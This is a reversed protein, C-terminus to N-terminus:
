HKDQSVVLESIIERGVLCISNGCPVCLFTVRKKQPLFLHPLPPFSFFLDQINRELCLRHTGTLLPQQVPLLRYLSFSSSPLSRQLQAESRLLQQACTAVSSELHPQNFHSYFVRQTKLIRCM